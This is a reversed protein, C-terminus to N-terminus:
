NQNKRKKFSAFLALISIVLAGGAFLESWQSADKVQQEEKSAADASSLDNYVRTTSYEGKNEKEALADQQEDSLTSMKTPDVDWSVVTGDAYTQYAKWALTTPLAPVQAQFVFEERQGAPISGDNWDIETVDNNKGTTKTAITWGAVANPVVSTVGKPILLRISTVETNKENPVSVTFDQFKAIGVQDPTVIVHAFAPTVFLFFSIFGVTLSAIKKSM